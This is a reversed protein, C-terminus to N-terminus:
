GGVKIIFGHKELRSRINKINEDAPAQIDNELSPAQLDEYKGRGIRHYPLLSIGTIGALPKLFEATRDINEQDDNIGPLLPIRIQVKKGAASLKQLNELITRNSVGTYDQHKREDIMKLDYYFIDTYELIPALHEWPAYGCTDVITHLSRSRCEQLLALLFRHQLLPEGGSFTVGGGSNDFFIRDKEITQMVEAVTMRKGIIQLADTPCAAACAGSLRCKDRDLLVAAPSRTLAQQPCAPICDSCDALCRAPRYTLEPHPKIGEPNHCWRCQLPCGKLFVTLRIGPGDHVAYRKIDFITGSAPKTESRKM